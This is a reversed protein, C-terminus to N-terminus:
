GASRVLPAPAGDKSRVPVWGAFTGEDDFSSPGFGVECAGFFSTKFKDRDWLQLVLRM